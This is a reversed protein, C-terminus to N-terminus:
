NVKVIAAKIDIKQGANVATENEAKMHHTQSYELLQKEAEVRINEATLQVKHAVQEDKNDGIQIFQNESVNLSDNHDINTNRDNGAYERIDNDATRQMDHSAAIFIDNDASANIDHGAHMIIDNKAYLEINGTSELKILKEDTSYTLIYNEKQYDYIRIYGGPGEDHIEITHGNRTRIAKVNNNGDPWPKGPHQQGHYLTGVVYPKEANGNEFAVMVEEGIEPIFYFGKDDGGHPQTIRLWPTYRDPTTLEQWLFQVRIRGLQEPDNNDVVRARQSECQPYLDCDLYPALPVESPIATVENEFHGDITLHSDVGIVLLPEHDVLVPEYDSDAYEHMVITDGILLDARNTRLHATLFRSKDGWAQATASLATQSYSADEQTGSHLVQLTSKKYISKAHEYAMEALSGAEGDAHDFGRESNNEYKLYDHQAHSFNPHEINLSYEMGLLDTEPYLEKQNSSHNIAQTSSQKIAQNSSHGSLPGLHFVGREFCLFEGYRQALRSLFAYTTENYQVTYPIKETMKPKFDCQLSGGLPAVAESFIEELTMNEFSCCHRNDALLFDPSYATVTIYAAEGIRGRRTRANFVIGEFTLEEGCTDMYEDRRETRFQLSVRQGILQESLEFFIDGEDRLLAKRRMTFRMEAPNLLQKRLTVETVIYEDLEMGGIRIVPITETLVAM